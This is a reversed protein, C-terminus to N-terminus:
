CVLLGLFWCVVYGSIYRDWDKPYDFKDPDELMAQLTAEEEGNEDEDTM